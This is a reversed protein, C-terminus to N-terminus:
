AISRPGGAALELLSTVTGKFDLQGGDSAVGYLANPQPRTSQFAHWSVYYSWPSRVFGLVPGLSGACSQHRPLHYGIERAGPV